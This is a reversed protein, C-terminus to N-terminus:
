REGEGEREAQAAAEARAGVMAEGGGGSALRGGGDDAEACKGLADSRRLLFPAEEGAYDNYYLSSSKWLICM